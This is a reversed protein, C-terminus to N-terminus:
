GESFSVMDARVQTFALELRNGDTDIFLQERVLMPSLEPIDLERSTKADSPAYELTTQIRGLEVGFVALIFGEIDNPATNPGLETHIADRYAIRSGVAKGDIELTFQRLLVKDGSLTLMKRILEPAVLIRDPLLVPILEIGSSELPFMGKWPLDVNKPLVTTGIRRQRELYGNDTLIQMAERVTSRSAHMSQVLGDESLQSGVPSIGHRISSKILDRVVHVPTDRGRNSGGRARPHLPRDDLEADTIPPEEPTYCPIGWIEM